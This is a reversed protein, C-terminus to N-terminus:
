YVIQGINPWKCDSFNAWYCVFFYTLFNRIPFLGDFNNVNAKFFQGFNIKQWCFLKKGFRTVSIQVLPWLLLLRIWQDMSAGFLIKILFKVPASRQRGVSSTSRLTWPSTSFTQCSSRSSSDSFVFFVRRSSLWRQQRPVLIIFRKNRRLWHRACVVIM